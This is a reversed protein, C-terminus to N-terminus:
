TDRALRAALETRSHVGLKRYIRTLNGEVTRVTIYLQAAVEKNSLGSAVLEAVRRETESLEGSAPPRGPIRALEATAKEAWRPAGLQDFIELAATLAARAEGRRKARREITGQALLTRGLEFPQPLREHAALARDLHARAADLDGRAAAVLARGRAAVVAHWSRNTPRGKEEVFAIVAEAEVLRDLAILADIENHVVQSISLEGVGTARLAADAPVLHELAATADNRSLEVFGLVARSRTAYLTDGVEELLALATHAAETAEDVNGVHAQVLGHIMYGIAREQATGASLGVTMTDRALRAAEVWNGARLEVEALRQVVGARWSDNGARELRDLEARLLPRAEDPRDTYACIYGLQFSPRQFAPFTEYRAEIEISRDLDAEPYPQGLIMLRICLDGIALAEFYEDGSAKASAVASRSHAVSRPLDGTVWTLTSLMIQIQTTLAPDEVAEQLAQECQEISRHFDEGVDALQWLVEARDRGPPLSDALRTLIARSRAPDGSNLHNQAADILRKRWDDRQDPPTLEAAREMLTGAIEPAGRGAAEDAAAVLEAAVAEEPDMTSRALHHARELRNHAARALRAHADQREWPPATSYTTSALLPHTFRLRKGEVEIVGAAVALALGDSGGAAREVVAATPQPSAAALLTALQAAEPLAELRHRLLASLSEPVPLPEGEELEAARLARGIELAYFPNGACAAHLEALRPRPLSLDLRDRLMSGLEDLTLPGIRIRTAGGDLTARDLGLPLPLEQETRRAILLKIPSGDLRRAGFELVEETPADLWQVDDIAVTVPEREALVRLLALLARSLALRTANEDAPVRQLAVNLAHRQAEPLEDFVSEIVPEVLDGLGAFPLAQEAEAPRCRLVRYGAEEARAVAELWVTTKGIGAEGEVVAAAPRGDTFLHEIQELEGRRGVIAAEM